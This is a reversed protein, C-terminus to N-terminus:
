RTDPGTVVITAAGDPSMTISGTVIFPVDESVHAVSGDFLSRIDVEIHAVAESSVIRWGAGDPEVIVTPQGSMSWRPVSEIRDQVVYGFPCGTPQLVEQTACATLFQEVKEQVVAVFEGTAEAQIEVPISHFPSDSLVAVGPTASVATDVSVSYLGPSFVLLPLPDLPEADAGDISVQRKDVEFGNVQFVMSGRVVLNMVALPSTAFRWTPAIGISGDREVSFTTTGPYGGAEYEVTVRTVAGDTEASVVRAKSLPALAAERLLAESATTPLGAEELAASDVAVGPVTLAEAARGDALMGVYREVFATPSYFQQQIAGLAAAVAAVLLVGVVGLLALDLALRRRSRKSPPRIVGSTVGPPSASAAPPPSARGATTDVAGQDM